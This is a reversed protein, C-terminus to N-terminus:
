AVSRTGDPARQKLEDVEFLAFISCTVSVITVFALQRLARDSSAYFCFSQLNIASLWVKASLCFRM